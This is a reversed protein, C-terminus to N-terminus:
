PAAPARRSDSDIDGAFWTLKVAGPNRWSLPVYQALADLLPRWVAAIRVVHDLEVPQAQQFSCGAINITFGAWSPSLRSSTAVLSNM